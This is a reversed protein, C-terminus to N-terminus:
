MCCDGADPLVACMLSQRLCVTCMSQMGWCAFVATSGIGVGCGVDDGLYICFNENTFERAVYVWCPTERFSASVFGDVDAGRQVSSLAGNVIKAAAKYKTVVDPNDLGEDVPQMASFLCIADATQRWCSYWALPFKVARALFLFGVM